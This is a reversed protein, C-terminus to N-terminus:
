CGDSYHYYFPLLLLLELYLLVVLSIESLFVGSALGPIGPRLSVDHEHFYRCFEDNEATVSVEQGTDPDTTVRGCFLAYISGNEHKNCEIEGTDNNRIKDL